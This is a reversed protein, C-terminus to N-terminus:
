TNITLKLVGTPLEEEQYTYGKEEATIKAAEIAYYRKLKLFEDMSGWEGDYNDYCVDGNGQIVVGYKWGPLYVVLGGVETDDYFKVFGRGCFQAGMRACARQLATVDRFEVDVKAVHSM